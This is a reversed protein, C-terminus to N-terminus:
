FFQDLSVTKSKKKQIKEDTSKKVDEPGEKKPRLPIFDDDFLTKQQSGLLLDAETWGFVETIRSAMQALRGAYYRYDPKKNFPVGSIFPEVEQPATSADTVIWSIKMGTSTQWPKKMSM